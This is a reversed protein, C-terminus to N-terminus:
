LVAGELLSIAPTRLARRDRGYQGFRNEVVREVHPEAPLERRDRELAVRVIHDQVALALLLRLDHQSAIMPRNAVTPRSSFRSLVRMTYQLSEFRQSPPWPFSGTPPWQIAGSTAM